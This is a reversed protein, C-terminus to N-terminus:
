KFNVLSCVQSMRSSRKKRQATGTFPGDASKEKRKLCSPRCDVTPPDSLGLLAAPSQQQPPLKWLGHLPTFVFLRMISNPALTFLSANTYHLIYIDSCSFEHLFLSFQLLWPPYLHLIYRVPASELSLGNPSAMRWLQTSRHTLGSHLYWRLTKKAMHGSMSPFVLDLSQAM